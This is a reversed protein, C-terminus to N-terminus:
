GDFRGVFLLYHVGKYWAGKAYRLPFSTHNVFLVFSSLTIQNSTSLFQGFLADALQM